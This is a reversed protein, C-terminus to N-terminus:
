SLTFIVNLQSFNNTSTICPQSLHHTESSLIKLFNEHSNSHLIHWNTHSQPVTLSRAYTHLIHWNNRSQSLSHAHLPMIMLELSLGVVTFYPTCERDMIDAIADKCSQMKHSSVKFLTSFHPTDLTTTALM